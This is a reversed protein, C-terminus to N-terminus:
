MPNREFIEKKAVLSGSNQNFANCSERTNFECTVIIEHGKGDGSTEDIKRTSL